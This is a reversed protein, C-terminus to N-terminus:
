IRSPETGRRPMAASIEAIRADLWAGASPRPPVFLYNVYGHAYPPVHAEWFEAGLDGVLQLFLDEVEGPKLYRDRDTANDAYVLRTGITIRLFDDDQTLAIVGAVRWEVVDGADLEAHRDDFFGAAGYIFRAWELADDDVFEAWASTPGGEAAYTPDLRPYLRDHAPDPNVLAHGLEYGGDHEDAFCLLWLVDRDRDRWVVGRGDGHHWTWTDARARGAWTDTLSSSSHQEELFRALGPRVRPARPVDEDRCRETLWRAIL